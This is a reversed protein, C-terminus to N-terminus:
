RNLIFEPWFVDDLYVRDSTFPNKLEWKEEVLKYLNMATRSDEISCHVRNQIDKEFLAKSLNRLSPTRCIPLGAMLRLPIFKSTDRIKLSDHQIKLIKLDSQLAHGVLYKSKLLRKVMKRAKLFPIAKKMHCPMIGSYRTRYDTIKKDPKVYCDFLVDGMYDVISCRALASQKNEGVGVMECDLSVIDSPKSM